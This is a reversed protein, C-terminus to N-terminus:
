GKLEEGQGQRKSRGKKKRQGMAPRRPPSESGLSRVGISVCLLTKEGKLTSIRQQLKNLSKIDEASLKHKKM